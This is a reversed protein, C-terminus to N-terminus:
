SISLIRRNLYKTVRKEAVEYMLLGSLITLLAIVIVLADGSFFHFDLRSVVKFLVPITFIQILYASYSSNGLKLIVANNTQKLSSLGLVLLFSPIGWILVRNFSNSEIPM